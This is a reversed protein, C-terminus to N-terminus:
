RNRDEKRAPNTSKPTNPYKLGPYAATQNMTKENQTENKRTKVM